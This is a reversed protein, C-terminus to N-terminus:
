KVQAKDMEMVARRKGAGKKLHCRVGHDGAQTRWIGEVRFVDADLWWSSTWNYPELKKKRLYSKSKDRCWDRLDAARMVGTHRPQAMLSPIFLLLAIVLCKRM